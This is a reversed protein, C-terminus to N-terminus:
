EKTATKYQLPTSGFAKKFCKIFVSSDCFGVALAAETVSSGINYIYEGKSKKIKPTSLISNLILATVLVIVLATAVFAIIGIRVKQRVDERQFQKADELREKRETLIREHTESLSRSFVYSEDNRRRPPPEPPDAPKKNFIRRQNTGTNQAPRANSAAVNKQTANPQIQRPRHESIQAPNASHPASQAPRAPPVQRKSAGSADPTANAKKPATNRSSQSPEPTRRVVKIRSRERANDSPHPHKNERNM